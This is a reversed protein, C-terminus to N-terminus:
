ISARKARVEVRLIGVRLKAVRMKGMGKLKCSYIFLQQQVEVFWFPFMGDFPHRQPLNASAAPVVNNTNQGNYPAAPLRVSNAAQFEPHQAHDM